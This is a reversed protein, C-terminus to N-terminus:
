DELQAKMMVKFDEGYDASQGALVATAHLYAMPNGVDLLDTDAVYGRCRGAAGLEQIADTLQIEGGHGPETSALLDFVEPMFLYRGQIGLNSPAHEIGPKEVAGSVDLVGDVVDSAPVVVGKSALLEEPLERLCLVSVGPDAAGALGILVDDGPRMLDDALLCFFPRDGVTDAATLVAHGLGKAEEQIVSRVVVDELGPLPGLVSFHDEVMAGAAPDIVLIVEKAGSRAAEEVVWQISPRDVVTLLAKPVVNTAPRMRTGKGAAPIVAVDVNM